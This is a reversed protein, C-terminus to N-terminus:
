DAVILQPNTKLINEVYSIEGPSFSTSKQLSAVILEDGENVFAKSTSAAYVNINEIGIFKMFSTNIKVRTEATFNGGSVQGSYGFGNGLPLDTYGELEAGVQKIDSYNNKKFVERALAQADAKAEDDFYVTPNIYKCKIDLYYYPASYRQGAVSYQKQYQVKAKAAGALSAADVATDLKSKILHARNFDLVVGACSLFIVLFLPFMLLVNGRKDKLVNM